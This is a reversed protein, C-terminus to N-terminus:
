AAGELLKACETHGWALAKDYATDGDMVKIKPDAGADLLVQIVEKNGHRAAQVCLAGRNGHRANERLVPGMISRYRTNIRRKQATTAMGPSTMGPTM